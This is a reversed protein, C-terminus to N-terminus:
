IAIWHPEGKKLQYNKEMETSYGENEVNEDDPERSSSSHRIESHASGPSQIMFDTATKNTMAKNDPDCAFGYVLTVAMVNVDAYHSCVGIIIM